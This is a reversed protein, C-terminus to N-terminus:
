REVGSLGGLIRARLSPPAEECCARRVLRRVATEFHFMQMCPPCAELHAQVQDAEASSLERDVYQELLSMIKACDMDACNM